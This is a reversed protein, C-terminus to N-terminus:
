SKRATAPLLAFPTEPLARSLLDALADPDRTISRAIDLYLRQRNLELTERRLLISLAAASVRAQQAHAEDGTKVFEEMAALSSQELADARVKNSVDAELCTAGGGPEPPRRPM